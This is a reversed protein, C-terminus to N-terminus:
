DPAEGARSGQRGEARRPTRRVTRAGAIGQARGALPLELPKWGHSGGEGTPKLDDAGSPVFADRLLEDPAQLEGRAKCEGLDRGLPHDSRPTRRPLAPQNRHRRSGRSLPCAAEVVGRDEGPEDRALARVGADGLTESSVVARALDTARTILAGSVRRSDRDQIPREDQRCSCRARPRRRSSRRSARRM